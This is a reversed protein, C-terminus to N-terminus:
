MKEEDCSTEKLVKHIASAFTGGDKEVIIQLITDNWENQVIDWLFQLELFCTIFIAFVTTWFGTEFFVHWLIFVESGWRWLTL